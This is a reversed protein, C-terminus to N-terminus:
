ARALLDHLRLFGPALRLAHHALETEFGVNVVARDHRAAGVIARAVADPSHGLGLARSALGLERDSLGRLRSHGVIPTDIVGPCVASVGVGAGAWDARLCRSLMLVAAKSTCYTAM